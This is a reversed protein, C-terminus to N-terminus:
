PIKDIFFRMITKPEFLLDISFFVM